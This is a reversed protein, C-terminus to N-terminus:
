AAAPHSRATAPATRQPARVPATAQAAAPRCLIALALSIAVWESLAFNGGQGGVQSRALPLILLLAAALRRPAHRHRLVGAAMLGALALTFVLASLLAAAGAQVWASLFLNHVMNRSGARFEQMHGTGQGFLPAEAIAELTLRFQLLRGDESIGGFRTEVLEFLGSLDRLAVLMAGLLAAGILGLLARDARRGAGAALMLALALGLALILSRSLSAAILLMAAGLGAAAMLRRRGAAPRMLAPLAGLAAIYFFGMSVQRLSAPTREAGAGAEGGNFLTLFLQFQLLAANGTTVAQVLMGTLSMGHRALTVAALTVFILAALAGGLLLSDFIRRLSLRALDRALGLALGAHLTLKLLLRAGAAPDAAGFLGLALAALYAAFGAAFLGPALGALPGPRLLGRLAAYALPLHVPKVALGPDALTVWQVPGLALIAVLAPDIRLRASM